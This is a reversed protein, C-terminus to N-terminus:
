VGFYKWMSYMKARGFLKIYRKIYWDTRNDWLAYDKYEGRYLVPLEECLGCKCKKMFIKSIICILLNHLIDIIHIYYNHVSAGAVHQAHCM